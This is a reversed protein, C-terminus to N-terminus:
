LSRYHQRTRPKLTRDRLWAEAYSGFTLVNRARDTRVKPAVWTGAQLLRREDALWGEADQRADFTYPANHRVGDPGTYRARYRGSPLKVIQGFGRKEGAM